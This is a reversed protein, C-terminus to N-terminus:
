LTIAASKVTDHLLNLNRKEQEFCCHPHHFLWLPYFGYVTWDNVRCHSDSVVPGPDINPCTVYWNPTMLRQGEYNQSLLSARLWGWTLPSSATHVRVTFFLVSPPKISRSSLPWVLNHNCHGYVKLIHQGCPHVFDLKCSPISPSHAQYCCPTPTQRPKWFPEPFIAFCWM